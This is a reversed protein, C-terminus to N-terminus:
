SCSGIVDAAIFVQHSSDEAAQAAYSRIVGKSTVMKANKPDTVNTKLEQGIRNQRPPSSASHPTFFKAGRLGGFFAM